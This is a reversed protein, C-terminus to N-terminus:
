KLTKLIYIPLKHCMRIQLYEFISTYKTLREYPTDICDAFRTKKKKFRGLPQPQAAKSHILPTSIDGEKQISSMRLVQVAKQQKQTM